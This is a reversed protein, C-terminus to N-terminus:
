KGLVTKGIHLYTKIEDMDSAEHLNEVRITYDGEEMKMYAFGKSYRTHLGDPSKGGGAFKPFKSLDAMLVIPMGIPIVRPRYFPDGGDHYEIAKGLPQHPIVTLRLIIKSGPQQMGPPRTETGINGWGLVKGISTKEFVLGSSSMNRLADYEASLKKAEIWYDMNFMYSQEKTISVNSEFANGAKSVDLPVDIPLTPYKACGTFEILGAILLGIAKNM